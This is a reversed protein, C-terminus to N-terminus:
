GWRYQKGYTLRWQIRVIDLSVYGELRNDNQVSDTRPCANLIKELGGRKRPPM